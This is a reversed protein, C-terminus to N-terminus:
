GAQPPPVKLHGLGPLAVRDQQAREDRRLRRLARREGFARLIVRPDGGTASGARRAHHTVGRECVNWNEQAARAYLETSVMAGESTLGLGRLLPGRVLKFACDVDTASFGFTRRVLSIWAHAAWRRHAPDDRQIRFGAVMDHTAAEPLFGELEGLDFQLDADTLLVWPMRSATIGSRVAAGYGRNEPHVVVRVRPDRRALATARLRTSDQSGDDVVLVEVASACREGAELAAAVAAAVNDEEDYCPLVISLGPLACDAPPWATPASSRLVAATASMQPEKQFSVIVAM